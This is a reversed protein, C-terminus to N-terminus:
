FLHNSTEKLGTPLFIQPSDSVKQPSFGGGGFFFIDPNFVPRAHNLVTATHRISIGPSIVESDTESGKPQPRNINNFGIPRTSGCIKLASFKYEYLTFTIKFLL